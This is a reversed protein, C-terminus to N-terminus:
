SSRVFLDNKVTFYFVLSTIIETVILAILVGQIKYIPTIVVILLLSLITIIMTINVYRSQKNSGLVLQKLPITLAQLVPIYIAIKLLTCIEQIGTPNFYTVVKTSFISILLMSIAIFIFNLGNYIKWFRM